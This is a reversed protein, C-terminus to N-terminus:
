LHHIKAYLHMGKSKTVLPHSIWSGLAWAQLTSKSMSSLKLMSSHCEDIQIFHISTIYHVQIFENKKLHFPLELVSINLDVEM